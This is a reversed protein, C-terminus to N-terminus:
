AGSNGRIDLLWVSTRQSIFIYVRAAPDAFPPGKEYDAMMQKM